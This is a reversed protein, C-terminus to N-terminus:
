GGYSPLQGNGAIITGAGAGHLSLNLLPRHGTIDVSEHNRKRFLFHAGVSFHRPEARLDPLLVARELIVLTDALVELRLVAHHRERFERAELIALRYGEGPDDVAGLLVAVAHIRPDHLIGAHVVRVELLVHREIHLAHGEAAKLREDM